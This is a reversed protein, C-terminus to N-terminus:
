VSLLVTNGAYTRGGVLDLMRVPAGESFDVDKMDVWFINPYLTSEFYYVRNKQDSVTRWRTSSINPQDPVSIGLPVSVNRIVSFIGAVAQRTDATQPLAAGRRIPHRPRCHWIRIHPRPETREDCDPM